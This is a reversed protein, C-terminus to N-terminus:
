DDLLFLKLSLLLSQDLLLVFFLSLLTGSSQDFEATDNLRNQSSRGNIFVLDSEQIKKFLLFFVTLEKAFRHIFLIGFTVVICFTLSFAAGDRLKNLACKYTPSAWM